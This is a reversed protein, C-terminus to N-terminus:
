EYQCKKHPNFAHQSSNFVFHGRNIVSFGKGFCQLFYLRFTRTYRYPARLSSSRSLQHFLSLPKTPDTPLAKASRKIPRHLPCVVYVNTSPSPWVVYVHSSLWLWGRPITRIFSKTIGSRRWLASLKVLCARSRSGFTLCKGWIIYSWFRVFDWILLFGWDFEM